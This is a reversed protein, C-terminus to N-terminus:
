EPWRLGAVVLAVAAPSGADAIARKAGRRVAEIAAARTRTRDAAAAVQVALDREPLGCAAAEASLFPWPGRGGALLDRAEREKERYTEAQGIGAGFDPFRAAEAGHDIEAIAAARASALSAAREADSKRRVLWGAAADRELVESDPDIVPAAVAGIATLEEASACALWNGPYQQRAEGEGRGFPQGPSVHRPAADAIFYETM